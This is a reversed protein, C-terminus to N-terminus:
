HKSNRSNNISITSNFSNNIDNNSYYNHITLIM